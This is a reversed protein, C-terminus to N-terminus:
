QSNKIIEIADDPHMDKRLMQRYHRMATRAKCYARLVSNSSAGFHKRVELCAKIVSIRSQRTDIRVDIIPPVNDVSHRIM